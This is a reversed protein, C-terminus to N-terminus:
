PNFAFYFQSLSDLLPCRVNQNIPPHLSQSPSVQRLDEHIANIKYAEVIATIWKKDPVKLMFELSWLVLKEYDLVNKEDLKLFSNVLIHFFFM